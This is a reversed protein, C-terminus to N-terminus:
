YRLRAVMPAGFPMENPMLSVVKGSMQWVTMALSNMTKGLDGEPFTIRLASTVKDQVTDTTVRSLNALLKDVRGQEAAALISAKDRAVREPNAGSLREYEERAAAHEPQILEQMVIAQAVPFLEAFSTETHNGSIHGEMIKPYKSLNRFEAVEADIGAILLPITRDARDHLITDIQHFFKLRDNDMPNRAGGRGNFWGTNTSPGTASGQNESKQNPEDIGLGERLSAPMAIGADTLGYMDGAYLKPHQQALALVYFKRDDGLLALVPALHFADDVAVYEETDIPLQFMEIKGPMACLLMGRSTEKWFDPNQVTQDLMDCLEKSLKTTDGQAKLAEVAKHILNKLRIQNETIHPPSATAELPVYLTVAPSTTQDVLQTIADHTIKQM